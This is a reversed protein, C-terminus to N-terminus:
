ASGAAAIVIVAILAIVALALLASAIAGTIVGALAMGDGQEGTRAIERRSRQGVIVAAPGILQCFLLSAIGLVLAVIANSNTPAATPVTYATAAPYGTGAPPYAPPPGPAGAPAGASRAEGILTSVRAEYAIDTRVATPGFTAPIGEARLSQDLRARQDPSLDGIPHDFWQSSDSM